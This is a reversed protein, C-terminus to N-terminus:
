LIMYSSCSYRQQQLSEGGSVRNKSAIVEDLSLRNRESLRHPASHSRQKAKFSQTNEMYGPGPTNMGYGSQANGCVRKSPCQMVYYRNNNATHHHSSSTLRPTTAFKSSSSLRPTSQATGFKWKEKPLNLELDSGRYVFGDEYESMPVLNHTQRPKPRRKFMDHVEVIKQHREERAVEDFKDFSHRPQFMHSYEKKHRRDRKSRVATQVRILAQISHLMTAARKRVLYGRVLAQLKVIGKLARLAKRALSGRFVKQIKVAAWREEWTIIDGARGEGTLRVMEAAAKAGSVVAEAATAAATAVAIANKDQEKEKDSGDGSVLRKKTSFLGKFWRVAGGM